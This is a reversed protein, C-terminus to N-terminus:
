PGLYLLVASFLEPFVPAPDAGPESLSVLPIAACHRAKVWLGSVSSHSNLNNSM